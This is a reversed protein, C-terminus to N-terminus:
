LLQVLLSHAGILITVDNSRNSERKEQQSVTKRKKMKFKTTAGHFHTLATRYFTANITTLVSRWNPRGGTTCFTCDRAFTTSSTSQSENERLCSVYENFTIANQVTSSSVGKVKKIVKYSEAQIAYMKSRLEAFVGIIRRNMEGKFKEVVKANKRNIGFRNDIPYDSTDFRDPNCRMIDYVNTGTVEYVFSYTDMYMLKLHEAGIEKLMFDYMLTKSLDLIAQGVYKPKRISIRTHSMRIAVLEESFISVSHFNRLAIWAEAGYRGDWKTVFRVDVRKRENEM